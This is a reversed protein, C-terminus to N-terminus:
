IQMVPTPHELNSILETFENKISENYMEFTEIESRCFACCYKKKRENQLSQKICNKCFEHGCNLKIFEKRSLEDYCISCECNENTSCKEESIITKIDFKRNLIIEEFSRCINIIMDIFLIVPEPEYNLIKPEFYKMINDICEDINNRMTSGIKIAFARILNSNFLAQDLVFRRFKLLKNNEHESFCSIYALCSVEFLRIQSSDCTSINHGPNRCFSCYRVSVNININETTLETTM